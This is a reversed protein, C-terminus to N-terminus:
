KAALELIRGPLGLSGKSTIARCYEAIFLKGRGNQIIDIPRALPALLTKLHAEYQGQANKRLRAQLLDFGYDKPQEILIGFRVILLTGPHEPPFDNGLFVLGAPSSHPDFSYIPSGNFGGDPGLNALPSEFKLGRPPDPTHAYLKDPLNAFM